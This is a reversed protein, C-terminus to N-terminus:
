QKRILCYHADAPSGEYYPDMKQQEFVVSGDEVLSAFKTEFGAPKWIDRHVTCALLGSRKLVRLIEDLANAHVHGHTFTGCSIVGEYTRSSIELVSNLDGEVLRMYCGKDGARTLMEPSFDLGDITRFGHGALYEGVLGTGCGVDLIRAARDPLAEALVDAIMGPAIYHLDQELHQDYTSAWDRYLRQADESGSLAYARELLQTAADSDQKDANNM